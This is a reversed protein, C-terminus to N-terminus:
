RDTTRNLLTNPNFVTAAENVNRVDRLTQKMASAVSPAALAAVGLPFLASGGSAAVIGATLGVATTAALVSRVSTGVAARNAAKKDGGYSVIRSVGKLRDSELKIDAKRLKKHEKLATRMKKADARNLAKIEKMDNKGMVAGKALAARKISASTAPDLASAPKHGPRAMAEKVSPTLPSKSSDGKRKGWKMGLVGHHKLDDIDIGQEALFASVKDAM